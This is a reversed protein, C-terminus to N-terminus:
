YASLNPSITGRNLPCIHQLPAPSPLPIPLARKRQRRIHSETNKRLSLKSVVFVIFLTDLASFYLFSSSVELLNYIKFPHLYLSFFTGGVVPFNLLLKYQTNQIWILFLSKVERLTPLCLPKPVKHKLPSFTSVVKAMNHSVFWATLIANFPVGAKKCSTM